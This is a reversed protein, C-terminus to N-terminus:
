YVSHTYHMYTRLTITSVILRRARGTRPRFSCRIEKSGRTVPSKKSPSQTYTSPFLEDYAYLIGNLYRRRFIIPDHKQGISEKHFFTNICKIISFRKKKKRRRFLALTNCPAGCYLLDQATKLVDNLLTIKKKDM